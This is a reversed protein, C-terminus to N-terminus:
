DKMKKQVVYTGIYFKGFLFLMVICQSILILLVKSPYTCNPNLLHFTFIAILTAFQIIQLQTLHKKWWISQRIEPKYAILFYYSYMFCHVIANLIGLYIAAGGPLWKACMYSGTLVTFHHYRHLFSLQANKKKLVIFM